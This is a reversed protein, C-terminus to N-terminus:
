ACPLDSRILVLPEAGSGRKLSKQLLGKLIGLVKLVLINSSHFQKNRTEAAVHTGLHGLQSQRAAAPGIGFSRHAHIHVGATGLPHGAGHAELGGNVGHEVGGVADHIEGMVGGGGGKQVVGHGVLDGHDQGGRAVGLLLLGGDTLGGLINGHEEGGIERQTNGEQDVGGLLHGGGHGLGLDLDDLLVMVALQVGGAAGGQGDGVRQTLDSGIGGDTIPAVAETLAGGGLDADVGDAHAVDYALM